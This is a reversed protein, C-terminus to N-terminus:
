NGAKFYGFEDRDRKKKAVIIRRFYGLAAFSVTTQFRVVCSNRYNSTEEENKGMGVKKTIHNLKKVKM